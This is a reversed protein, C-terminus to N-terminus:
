EADDVSAKCTALWPGRSELDSGITGSFDPAAAAVCGDVTGERKPMAMLRASSSRMASSDNNINKAANSKITPRVARSASKRVRKGTVHIAGM